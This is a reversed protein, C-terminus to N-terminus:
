SHLIQATKTSSLEDGNEHGPEIHNREKNDEADQEGSKYSKDIKPRCQEFWRHWEGNEITEDSIVNRETITDHPGHYVKM